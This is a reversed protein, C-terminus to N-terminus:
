PVRWLTTAEFGPLPQKEPRGIYTWRAVWQGGADFFPVTYFGSVLLRDEARVAAVFDERSRANLMAEIARDVAPDAIGPYNRTGEIDRGESGFYFKQENGPSLSNYWTAPIMDYDYTRQIAAFQAADVLRVTVAIGIQELSRQFHLANREQDKNQVSITFAFQQGAANVLGKDGITWGAESLLGVAKRLLRRDRGSGDSVPLKYSGDLVDPRMTAASEGLVSRERDDAPRGESSLESGGYFGYTRRYAGNFLNANAWEFDFAMVLAERVRVDAFLKRRTNFAFGAAPAPSRQPITELAIKGEKVAPFDYGSSWRTTDTEIRIDALGTKFAEFAANADRYYDFRVEDFNWLGRALALNKGWYDKNRRFTVSEGPKAEAIVYPGSGVIAELTTQDFSRSSWYAKSVIPMVGVILPLERDGSEQTFAVTLTDPTEVKTIKSYSNKFNPRGKDRLLEMSFVVDAATVPTGDSFRAEPRLRFTFTQRDDSLDVSEALLGYLSFAEDWNRGLLSEFVYTRVGAAATGKVIFPNVSDFSGIVAQRLQGGQPADPNAYPLHTFDAALAPEGHMAIGHRPEALAGSTAFALGALLSLIRIPKMAGSTVADPAM